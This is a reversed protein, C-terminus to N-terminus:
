ACESGSRISGRRTGTTVAPRQRHAAGSHQRERKAFRRRAPMTAAHDSGRGQDQTHAHAQGRRGGLRTETVVARGLTQRRRRRQLHHLIRQPIDPHRRAIAQRAKIPALEAHEAIIRGIRRRQGAIVHLGHERRAGSADQHTALRASQGHEVIGLVAAKGAVSRIRRAISQTTAVHEREGLRGGPLHIGAGVRLAHRAKTRRGPLHGREIADGVDVRRQLRRGHEVEGDVVLAHEPDPRQIRQPADVGGIGLTWPRHPAHGLQRQDVRDRDGGITPQPHARLVRQKTAIGTTVRQLADLQRRLRADDLRHDVACGSFGPDGGAATHETDSGIAPAVPNAVPGGHRLRQRIHMDGVQHAIVLASEPERQLRLPKGVQARIPRAHLQQAVIREIGSLRDGPRALPMAVQGSPVSQSSAVAPSSVRMPASPLTCRQVADRWAASNRLCRSAAIWQSAFPASQSGCRLPTSRKSGACSVSLRSGCAPSGQASPAGSYMACVGSPVSHIPARVAPRFWIVLAPRLRTQSAPSRPKTLSSM